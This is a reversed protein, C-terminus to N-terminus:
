CRAQADVSAEPFVATLDCPASVKGLLRDFAEPVGTGFNCGNRAMTRMRHM